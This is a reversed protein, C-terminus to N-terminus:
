TRLLTLAQASTPMRESMAHRGPSVVCASSSVAISRRLSSGFMWPMRTWIGNGGCISGARTMSAIASWFSTSPKWRSDAPAKIVPRISPAPPRPPTPNRGQVGYPTMRMSCSAFTGIAPACATTMPRLLVTPLGIAIISSAALAVTVIQWLAVRSRAAWTRCASMTTAATPRADVTVAPMTLGPAATTSTPMFRSAVPLSTPSTSKAATRSTAPQIEGTGPPTPGIVMVISSSM